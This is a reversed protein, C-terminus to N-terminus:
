RNARRIADLAAQYVRVQINDDTRSVSRAIIKALGETKDQDDPCEYVVSGDGLIVPYAEDGCLRCETM